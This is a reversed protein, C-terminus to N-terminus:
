FSLFNLVGAFAVWILYPVLLWMSTKNIKRTILIMAWISIWLIIIEVFSLIPNKLGFYFISWLINLAFNIAFISILIPKEKKKSNTWAFYLSLAILFFLVNWVIPFVFSPPTISPKISEYWDTSTNPSTFLSGVFAVLYVVVLSIILVKWNLKRKKM